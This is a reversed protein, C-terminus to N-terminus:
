RCILGIMGELDFTSFSVGAASSAACALPLAELVVPSWLLTLVEGQQAPPVLQHSSHVPVGNSGTLFNQDFLPPVGVSDTQNTRKIRAPLTENAMRPPLSHFRKGQERLTSRGPTMYTM